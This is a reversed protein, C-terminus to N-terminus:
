HVSPRGGKKNLELLSIEKTERTIKLRFPSTDPRSYVAPLVNPGPIIDGDVVIPNRLYVTAVFEGEPAGDASEFTGVVFSGDESATAHPQLGLPLKSKGVHHLVVSANPLPQGELVVRGKVPYVEVPRLPSHMWFLSVAFGLFAVAAGKSFAQYEFFPASIKRFFVLLSAIQFANSSQRAITLGDNVKRVGATSQLVHLLMLREGKSAVTGRVTIAGSKVDLSVRAFSALGREVLRDGVRALLADDSVMAAATVKGMTAPGSMTTQSSANPTTISSNSANSLEEAGLWEMIKVEDIDSRVSKTRTGTKGTKKAQNVKTGHSSVVGHTGETEQVFSMRNAAAISQPRENALPAKTPIGKGRLQNTTDMVTVREQCIRVATLIHKARGSRLGLTVEGM